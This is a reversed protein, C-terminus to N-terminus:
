KALSFLDELSVEEAFPDSGSGPGSDGEYSGGMGYLVSEFLLRHEEVQLATYGRLLALVEDRDVKTYLHLAKELDYGCMMMLREDLSLGDLLKAYETGFSRVAPRTDVESPDEDRSAGELRESLRRLHHETPKSIGCCEKLVQAYVGLVAQELEEGTLGERRVADMLRGMRDFAALPVPFSDPFISQYLISVSM